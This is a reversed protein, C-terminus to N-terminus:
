VRERCSARGIQESHTDRTSFNLDKDGGEANFGCVIAVAELLTSKGTGNEGVLFTVNPHLELKTLNRVVPICYPYKDVPIDTRDLEIRRVFGQSDDLSM